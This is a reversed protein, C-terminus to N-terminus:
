SKAKNIMTLIAEIDQKKPPSALEPMITANLSKPEPITKQINRANAIAAELRTAGESAMDNMFNLDDSLLEARQTVDQIKKYSGNSLKNLEVVSAEARIIAGDFEKLMKNFEIKNKQLENIKGHLSHCYWISLILLFIILLDIIIM